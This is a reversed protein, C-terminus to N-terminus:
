NRASCSSTRSVRISLMSSDRSTSVTSERVKDISEANSMSMYSLVLYADFMAQCKEVFGPM